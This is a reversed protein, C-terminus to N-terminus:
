INKTYIVRIRAALIQMYIPRDFSYFSGNTAISNPYCITTEVAWVRVFRPKHQIAM